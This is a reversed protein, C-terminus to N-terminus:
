RLSMFRLSIMILAILNEIIKRKVIFVCIMIAIMIRIFMENLIMILPARQLM